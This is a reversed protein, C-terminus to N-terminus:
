YTTTAAPPQDYFATAGPAMIINSRGDPLEVPSQRRFGLLRLLEPSASALRETPYSRKHDTQPKLWSRIYLTLVGRRIHASNNAGGAHFAQCDFAVISGAPATMKVGSRAGVPAPDSHSGPILLTAGNEATFDDICWATQIGVPFPMFPMSGGWIGTDRHLGQAECGAVRAGLNCSSLICDDGILGEVTALVLPDAAVDCFAQDWTVLNVGHFIQGGRLETQRAINADIAQRMARLNEPSIADRFVTFGQDRLEAQHRAVTAPDVQQDTATATDPEALATSM